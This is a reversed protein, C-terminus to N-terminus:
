PLVAMFGSGTEEFWQSCDNMGKKYRDGTGPDMIIVNKEDYGAVLVPERGNVMALVPIDNGPYYLLSSLDCDSLDLVRHGEEGELILDSSMGDDLMDQVQKAGLALGAYDSMVDLCLALQSVEEAQLDFGPGQLEHRVPRNGKQWIYDMNDDLACGNIRAAATVADNSEYCSMEFRGNGYVYYRGGREKDETMLDVGGEMLIEDPIQLKINDNVTGTLTIQAVKERNETIVQTITNRTVNEPKNDMIQDDAVAIYSGTQDAKKLRKIHLTVNNIEAKSVYIGDEHYTKLENGKKDEIKITHMPVSETGLIKVGGDNKDSIGYVIDDGMFGIPHIEEGKAVSIVRSRSTGVDMLHLRGEDEWAVLQNSASSLISGMDSAVVHSELSDLDVCYISGEVYIYFDNNRTIYSLKEVEEKLMGGCRNFPIFIKEEIYNRSSDYYYVSTGVEGEHRGRNMYGYVLFYVNGTEDVSLTKISHDDNLTRIDFCDEDYFSFVKTIVGENNRYEFLENAQSFVVASGESNEKLVDQAGTIGLVVKDNVFVEKKPDFIQEMDRTYELLYTREPTYRTRYFEKVLYREPEEEGDTDSEIEVEYTMGISALAEDMEYINESLFRPRSVNLNGWTVQNFSSHIDVHAYTSNDGEENSELYKALDSANDKDFTKEHFDEIFDLRDDPNLTEKEIVRTYYKIQQAFDTSLILVLMYERNEDILDKLSFDVTVEDKGSNIYNYLETKEVLRKSDTSRLEYSIAEIENGMTMISVSLKKESGMPTLTDRLYKQDMEGRYGFLTNVRHGEVVMNVVPFSPPDMEVTLDSNGKNMVLSFVLVALVFTTIFILFRIINQKM